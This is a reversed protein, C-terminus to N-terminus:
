RDVWDPDMETDFCITQCNLEKLNIKVLTKTNSFKPVSVLLVSYGNIDITKTAYKAMNGAIFIDPLSQLIHPDSETYPYCGLASITFPNESDSYYCPWLCLLLLLVTCWTSPFLTINTKKGFM